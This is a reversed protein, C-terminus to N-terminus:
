IKKVRTAATVVAGIPTVVGQQVVKRPNYKYMDCEDAGKREQDTKSIKLHIKALSPSSHSDVAVDKFSLHSSADYKTILSLPLRPGRSEYKWCTKIAIILSLVFDAFVCIVCVWVVLVFSSM